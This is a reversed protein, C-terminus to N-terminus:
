KLEALHALAQDYEFSDLAEIIKQSESVKEAVKASATFEDILEQSIYESKYLLDHISKSVESFDRANKTKIQDHDQNSLVLKEIDKLSKLVWEALTNLAVKDYAGTLSYSQEISYAQDYIIQLGINGGSGKVSHVLGKIQEKDKRELADTLSQEFTQYQKAFANIVKLFLKPKSCIVPTSKSFDYAQLDEPVSLSVNSAKSKKKKTKPSASKNMIQSNNKDVVERDSSNSKNLLTSSVAPLWKQCMVLLQDGDVPKAIYDDMGADLCKQRAGQMAHATMAIIPVNQYSLGALGRRIQRTADYGDLRPMQCDMLVLSFSANASVMKLKSVADLGDRAVDCDLGFEELIGQAVLLNVENDDVILIRTNDSWNLSNHEVESISQNVSYNVTSLFSKTVMLESNLDENKNDKLAVVSLADFLDSDSVPKIFCASVGIKHLRDLPVIDPASSMILLKMSDFEVRKRIAEALTVGDMEPMNMDLLAADFINEKHKECYELATASDEALITTAGWHELQSKFIERNTESDDVILINLRSIDVRPLVLRSKKSSQLIVEFEFCSGKGEQSTAKIDGQLLGCLRKCIALGLGSGGFERTTSTDVQTFSDFLNALKDEPIGIGSDTVKCILRLSNGDAEPQEGSRVQCDFLKAEIVIEGQQTFKIANSVLNVLIQRLRSPDGKVMSQKVGVVNLLLEINNEVAKFSFTKVVDNLLERLDFDLIELELKGAEVKSFDLIDNILSLLSQASNQAITARQRQSKDLNNKLLLGLMGIVGNMPTRIEHSMSALFDSKAQSASEASEKAKTIEKQLKISETLDVHTGVFRTVQDTQEDRCAYARSLIPVWHGDKHRMRFEVRFSEQAGTACAEILQLTKQNDDPHVLKSWTEFDGKLEGQQYGLMAGWRQSYYLEDTQYNWDWVGDNSGRMALEFREESLKLELTRKEVREELLDHEILLVQNARRGLLMNILTFGISVIVTIFLIIFVMNRASFYPDMAEDFDIETAIGIGLQKDWTWVGVVKVGRYDRYGDIDYDSHGSIASSAMHTLSKPQSSNNRPLGQNLLNIGPDKLNVSLISQGSEILGISSLQNLFRSETIMQARRNFFYTEGSQGIQGLGSIRSFDGQPNLREALVAIVKEQSNKIPALFFMTPPKQRGVINEVQPLSVDSEIPPVFVNEGNFARLLLEPRRKKIINIQGINSDRKSAISIGDPAIVFFGLRGARKQSVSLFFRMEILAASGLLTKKQEHQILQDSVMEVFIQQGTISNLDSNQDHMWIKMAEFTTQMVTKLSQHINDKMKLQINQLAWWGLIFVIVILIANFTVVLRQGSQSSFQFDLPSKKSRDILRFLLLTGAVMFILLAGIAFLNAPKLLLEFIEDNQGASLSEKSSLNLWREDLNKTEAPSVNAMAKELIAVLEPWDKRVAIRYRFDIGLNSDLESKVSLNNLLLRGILYNASPLELITADAKNFAVAKLAQEYNAVSVIKIDPFKNKILKAGADNNVTAVRKGSLQKLGDPVEEGVRTVIANVSNKYPITFNLFKNREAPYQFLSHMVDLNKNKAMSILEGFDAQIFEIKVNLKKALLKMFEISYGVPKGDVTYDYPAYDPENMVRIIPHNKLWRREKENLLEQNQSSNTPDINDTQLNAQLKDAALDFTLLGSLLILVVCSTFLSNLKSHQYSM